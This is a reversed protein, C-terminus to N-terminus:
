QMRCRACLGEVQVRVARVEFGQVEEPSRQFRDLRRDHLDLVRQCSVCVLHHHPRGAGAGPLSVEYRGYQHLSNVDSV